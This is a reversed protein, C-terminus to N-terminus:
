RFSVSLPPLPQLHFHITDGAAVWIPPTISGAIIIEGARLTEGFASLLNATHSVIHALEGTLAAFDATDALLEDNRVVRANLGDLRGGAHSPDSEGLILHRQYIDRALTGEM